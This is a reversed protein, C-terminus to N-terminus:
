MMLKLGLRLILINLLAPLLHKQTVLEFRFSYNVANTANASFKVVGSGDGNPNDSDSGVVQVNFTLNTPIINSPPNPGGGGNDGGGPDGGGSCAFILLFVFLIKSM